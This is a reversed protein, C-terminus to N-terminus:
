DLTRIQLRKGDRIPIRIELVGNKISADAQDSRVDLPLVISRSFAGWYCEQTFWDDQNITNQHERTGRITLLDGDIAIDLDDASIGAVPSKIVLSGEERYVDITLQGEQNLNWEDALIPEPKKSFLM